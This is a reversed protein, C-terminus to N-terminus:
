SHRLCIPAAELVPVLSCETENLNQRLHIITCCQRTKSATADRPQEQMHSLCLRFGIPIVAQWLERSLQLRSHDSADM